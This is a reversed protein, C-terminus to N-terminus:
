KKYCEDLIISLRSCPTTASHMPWQTVISNGNLWNRIYEGFFIKIRRLNVTSISQLHIRGSFFRNRNWHSESQSAVLWQRVFNKWRDSLCVRRRSCIFSSFSLESLGIAPRRGLVCKLYISIKNPCKIFNYIVNEINYTHQQRQVSQCESRLVSTPTFIEATKKWIRGDVKEGRWIRSM